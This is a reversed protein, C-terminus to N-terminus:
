SDPDHELIGVVLLWGIMYLCLAVGAVTLIERLRRPLLPKDPLNPEVIRELYFQQKQSEVRAQELGANAATLMQQSFEQEALLNEYEGLKSSIAGSTGVARGSQVAIQEGLAAIRARLTPLSPNDPAVREIQQAQAKLVAQESILRVTLDLVAAAQRSPDLLATANRYERLAQRAKQVRSEAGSVRREAEAIGRSQARDNLRNVLAESLQLLQENIEQADEPTFGWVSLVVVGTEHETSPSVTEGYFKYLDEFTDSRLLGPFRALPDASTSSYRYRFGANRDLQALADRSRLYEIVENAQEQGASLGTTQILNALTGIQATRQGPAKVVFRSESVYRNSAIMGFYMTALLTPLIVLVLFWRHQKALAVAASFRDPSRERAVTETEQLM